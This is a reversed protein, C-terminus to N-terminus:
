KNRGYYCEIQQIYSSNVFSKIDKKHPAIFYEITATSDSSNVDESKSVFDFDLLKESPHIESLYISDKRWKLFKVDWYNKGKKYNLFYTEKYKKLRQNSSVYFLTDMKVGDIYVTDNKIKCEVKASFYKSIHKAILSDKGVDASISFDLEISNKHVKSHFKNYRVVENKTVAISENKNECHNYIGRIRFGFSNIERVGEPQATKFRVYSYDGTCGSIVIFLISIIRNM